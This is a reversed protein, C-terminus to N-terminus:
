APPRPTEQLLPAPWPAARPPRPAPPPDGAIIIIGGLGLEELAAQEPYPIDRDSGGHIAVVLPMPGDPQQTPVFLRYERPVGNVGLPLGEAAEESHCGFLCCSFLLLLPPLISKM